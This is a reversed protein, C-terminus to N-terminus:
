SAVRAQAGLAETFQPQDEDSDQYYAITADSGALDIIVYGHNLFVGNDGLTLGTVVPVEPFKPKASVEGLGIPFAGHGICRALVGMYKEYIVLNHEHGWFWIDVGPLLPALQTNLKDNASKGCIDEFAAFLQHHSLLVTRRNGRNQIKDALWQVETDHLFTPNGGVPNSDNFGTDVALLQWSDNRLCFYSAPQGLQDLLKYYAAGGSFMDHNGSLTFTATRSLDLTNKWIQYFYNQVEFDTASYYIDGMHIVVDPNKRAIQTLLTKADQQGTGWDGVLAVRAKDPLKGDIVFDSLVKHSRYPIQGKSALFEAYKIAAEAWDPDCDGMKETLLAQYRAADGTRGLVKAVAYNRALSACYRVTDGVGETVTQPAVAPVGPPPADAKRADDVANLEVAAMRVMSNNDTDPRTIASQGGVDQSQTGATKRAAVEDVASQFLSLDPDRFQQLKAM